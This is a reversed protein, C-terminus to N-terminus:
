EDSPDNFDVVGPDVPASKKLKAKLKKPKTKADEFAKLQARLAKMEAEAEALEADKASLEKAHKANANNVRKATSGGQTSACRSIDENM